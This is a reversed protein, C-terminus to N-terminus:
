GNWETIQDISAPNLNFDIAVQQLSNRIFNVDKSEANDHSRQVREWFQGTKFENLEAIYLDGGELFLKPFNFKLSCINGIFSLTASNKDKIHAGVSCRNGQEDQYQCMFENSLIETSLNVKGARKKQRALHLVTADFAEQITKFSM